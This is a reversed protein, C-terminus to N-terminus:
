RLHNIVVSHTDITTGGAPACVMPLQVRLRAASRGVVILHVAAVRSTRPGHIVWQVLGAWEAVIIDSLQKQRLVTMAPRVLQRRGQAM